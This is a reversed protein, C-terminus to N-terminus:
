VVQKFVNLMELAAKRWSFQQARELGKKVLLQRLPEDNELRIIADSIEDVSEPNVIFAANGAVQGLSGRTSTIVPCGCAMAEIVPL